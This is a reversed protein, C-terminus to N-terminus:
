PQPVLRGAPLWLSGPCRTQDGVELILGDAPARDGWAGSCKRMSRLLRTGQSPRSSSLCSLLTQANVQVDAGASGEHLRTEVLYV